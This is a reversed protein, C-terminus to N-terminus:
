VLKALISKHAPNQLALDFLDMVPLRLEYKLRYSLDYYSMIAKEVGIFVEILCPVVHDRLPPVNLRDQWSSFAFCLRHMLKVARGRLSPDRVHGDSAMIVCLTTLVTDSELLAFIGSPTMGSKKGRDRYLDCIDLVNELIVTPCAHWAPGPEPPPLAPQGGVATHLLFRFQLNVFRALNELFGPEKLASEALLYERWATDSVEPNKEFFVSAVGQFAHFAEKAVPLLLTSIGKSALWFVETMFLKKDSPPATFAYDDKAFEV